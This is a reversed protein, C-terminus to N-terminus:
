IDRRNNSNSLENTEDINLYTSHIFKIVNSTFVSPMIYVLIKLFYNLDIQIMKLFKKFELESKILTKTNEILKKDNFDTFNFNKNLCKFYYVLQTSILAVDDQAIIFNIMPINTIIEFKHIDEYLKKFYEDKSDFISINNKIKEYDIEVKHKM